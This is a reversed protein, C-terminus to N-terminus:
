KFLAFRPDLLIAITFFTLLYIICYKTLRNKAATSKNFVAFPLAYILIAEAIFSIGGFGYLYVQQAWRPLWSLNEIVDGFNDLFTSVRLIDQTIDKLFHIVVFVWLLIFLTKKM